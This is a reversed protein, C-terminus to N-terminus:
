LRRNRRRDLLGKRPDLSVRVVLRESIEPSYMRRSRCMPSFNKTERFSHYNEDFARVNVCQERSTSRLHGRNGRTIGFVSYMVSVICLIKRRSKCVGTETSFSYCYVISCPIDTTEGHTAVCLLINSKSFSYVDNTGVYRSVFSIGRSHEMTM